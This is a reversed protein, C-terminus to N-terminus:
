LSEKLNELNVDLKGVLPLMALGTLTVRPLVTSSELLAIKNADHVAQVLLMGIKLSVGLGRRGSALQYLYNLSIGAQKAVDKKLSVPAYVMWKKLESENM